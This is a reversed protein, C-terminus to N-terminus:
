EISTLTAHLMFLSLFHRAALFHTPQQHVMAETDQIRYTPLHIEVPHHGLLVTKGIMVYDLLYM